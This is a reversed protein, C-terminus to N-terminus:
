DDYTGIYPVPHGHITLCHNSIPLATLRRLWSMDKGPFSFDLKSWEVLWVDMCGPASAFTEYHGAAELCVSLQCDHM